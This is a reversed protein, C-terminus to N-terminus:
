VFFTNFIKILVLRRPYGYPRTSDPCGTAQTAPPILTPTSYQKPLPAALLTPICRVLEISLFVQIFGIISLLQYFRYFNTLQIPFGYFDIFLYTTLLRYNDIKLNNNDIKNFKDFKDACYNHKWTNLPLSADSSGSFWDLLFNSEYSLNLSKNWLDFISCIRLMTPIISLMIWRLFM